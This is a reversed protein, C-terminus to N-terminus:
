TPRVALYRNRQLHGRRRTHWVRRRCCTGRGHRDHHGAASASCPGPLIEQHWAATGNVAWYFGLGSAGPSCAAVNVSGDNATIAPASTIAGPRGRGGQDLHPHRQGGLLLGPQRRARRRRHERQRREGDAGALLLDDAPGAVTEPHWAHASVPRGSSTWATAPGRRPSSWALETRGSRRRWYNTGSARWPRRPWGSGGNPQWYFDLSNDAGQAAIVVYDGVQAISPSSFTTGNAAVQEGHWTDTGHENWYFRLGDGSTQVAIVSNGDAVTIAPTLASSARAAPGGPALVAAAALAVVALAVAAARKVTRVLRGGQGARAERSKDDHPMRKEGGSRANAISDFTWSSIGQQCAMMDNLPSSHGLGEQAPQGHELHEVGGARQRDGLEGAAAAQVDGDDGAGDSGALAVAPQGPGGALDGDPRAGGEEAVGAREGVDDGAGRGKHVGDGAHGAQEGM